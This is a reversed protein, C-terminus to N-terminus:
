EELVLRAQDMIESAIGDVTDHHIGDCLLHGPDRLDVEVEAEVQDDLVIEVVDGPPPMRLQIEAMDRYRRYVLQFVQDIPGVHRDKEYICYSRDAMLGDFEDAGSERLARYLPLIRERSEELM